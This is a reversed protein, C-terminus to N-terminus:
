HVEYDPLEVTCTPGMKPEQPGAASSSLPDSLSKGSCLIRTLPLLSDTAFPLTCAPETSKDNLEELDKVNGGKGPGVLPWPFWPSQRQLYQEKSPLGAGTGGRGAGSSQAPSGGFNEWGSGAMREARFTRGVQSRQFSSSKLLPALRM